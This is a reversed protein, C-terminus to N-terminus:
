NWRKLTKIGLENTNAKAEVRKIYETNKEIANGHQCNVVISKTRQELYSGILFGIFLAISLHFIQKGM